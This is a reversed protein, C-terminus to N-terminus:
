KKLNALELPEYLCPIHDDAFVKRVSSVNHAWCAAAFAIGANKAMEYGPLLDDVMLLDQKQLHLREMIQEIPWVSPKQQEKPYDSGFILDPM